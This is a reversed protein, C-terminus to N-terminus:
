TTEELDCIFHTRAEARFNHPLRAAAKGAVLCVRHQGGGLLHNERVPSGREVKPWLRGLVANRKGQPLKSAAGPFRGCIM